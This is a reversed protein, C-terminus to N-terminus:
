VSLWVRSHVRFPLLLSILKTSMLIMITMQNNFIYSKGQSIQARLTVKLWITNNSM